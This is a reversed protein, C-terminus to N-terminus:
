DPSVSKDTKTETTIKNETGGVIIVSLVTLEMLGLVEIRSTEPSEGLFFDICSYSFSQEDFCRTM